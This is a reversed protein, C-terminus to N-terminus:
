CPLPRRDHGEIRDGGPRLNALKAAVLARQSENLHRRHLNLSIVFATLSAEDGPYETTLPRIGLETCARYRNRGDLIQGKYTWITERQGNARIDAVFAQYEGNAMPPFIDAVPHAEMM